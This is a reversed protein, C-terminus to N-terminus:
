RSLQQQQQERALTLNLSRPAAGYHAPPCAHPTARARDINPLKDHMCMIWGDVYREVGLVLACVRLLYQLM